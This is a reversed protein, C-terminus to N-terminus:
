WGRTLKDLVSQVPRMTRGTWKSSEHLRKMMTAPHTSDLASSRHRAPEAGSCDGEPDSGDSGMVWLSPVRGTRARCFAIHKGDPSVAARFDWRGIAPETLSVFQDKRPDYQAIM